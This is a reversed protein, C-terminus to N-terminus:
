SRSNACPDDMSSHLLRKKRAWRRSRSELERVDANRTLKAMPLIMSGACSVSGKVHLTTNRWDFGQVRSRPPNTGTMAAVHGDLSWDIIILPWQLRNRLVQAMHSQFEHAKETFDIEHNHRVGWIEAMEEFVGTADTTLLVKLATDMAETIVVHKYDEPSLLVGIDQDRSSPQHNLDAFIAVRYFAPNPPLPASPPLGPPGPTGPGTPAGRGGPAQSSGRGGRPVQSGGRPVGSRGRPVPPLGRSPPPAQNPPVPPFGGVASGGRPVPPLGRSPPPVQNPPVPPLGGSPPDGRDPPFSM